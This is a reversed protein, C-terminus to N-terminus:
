GTGRPTATVFNEVLQTIGTIATGVVVAFAGCEFARRVDDPTQTGGECIIPRRIRAVLKELLTFAPLPTEQTEGTYGCLTTAIMDAGCDAALLGEEFTAIDAMVPTTLEQQIRAVLAALKEGNPRARQTADVAVIDAGNSVVGAAAAFTPTIYVDSDATVVKEIGIIPVNLHARAAAINNPGNLRVGVAGQQEAVRAMATIVHPDNLPSGAPAQCSVILGGGLSELLREIQM